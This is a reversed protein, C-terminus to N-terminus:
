NIAFKSQIKVKSYTESVTKFNVKIEVLKNLNGFTRRLKILFKIWLCICQYHAVLVNQHINRM